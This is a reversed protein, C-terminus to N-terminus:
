VKPAPAKVVVLELAEGCPNRVDMRTGLPFTILTGAEYERAEQGNLAISLRGRLVTMYLNANTSHVPLSDGQGLVMHLYHIHEDLLVKEITKEETQALKYVNEVM